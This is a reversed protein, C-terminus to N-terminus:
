VQDTVNIFSRPSTGSIVTSSMVMVPVTAVATTTSFVFPSSGANLWAVARQATHQASCQNNQQQTKNMNERTTQTSMQRARM